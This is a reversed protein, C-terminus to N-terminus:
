GVRFLLHGAVMRCGPGDLLATPEDFVYFDARVGLSPDERTGM